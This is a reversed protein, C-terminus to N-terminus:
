PNDEAMEDLLKLVMDIAMFTAVEPSAGKEMAEVECVHKIGEWAHTSCFSAGNVTIRDPRECLSCTM